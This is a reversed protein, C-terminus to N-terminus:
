SSRPRPDTPPRRGPSPQRRVADAISAIRGRGVSKAHRLAADAQALVIRAAGAGASTPAVGACATVAVIVAHGNLHLEAPEAAAAIMAAAVRRPDATGANVIVAFEDRRLWFVATDVGAAVHGLRAGILVLLQDLARDGIQTILTRSHDLNLLIVAIPVGPRDPGDLADVFDDRTGIGTLPDRGTVANATPRPKARVIVAFATVASIAAAAIAAIVLWMTSM